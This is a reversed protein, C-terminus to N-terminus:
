GSIEQRNEKKFKDLSLENAILTLGGVVTAVLAGVAVGKLANKTKYSKKKNVEDIGNLFVNASLGCTAGGGISGIITNTTMKKKLNKEKNEDDKVWINMESLGYSITSIILVGLALLSYYKAPKNKKTNQIQEVVNEFISINKQNSQRVDKAEKELLPKMSKTKYTDLYDVTGVISALGGFTSIIYFPNKPPRICGANKKQESIHNYPNSTNVINNVM